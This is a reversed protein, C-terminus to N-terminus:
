KKVGAMILAAAKESRPKLCSKYPLPQVVMGAFYDFNPEIVKGDKDVPKTIDFTALISALSLWVHAKAMHRGPCIRRGFGFIMEPDMIAPNLKGDLLWREPKFSYPDPYMAEDHLIAWTNPIVVSGAPIRYGRYEDEVAVFHPISIPTVNKWRLSEKMCAAVYPLSAEDDFDPLRDQGVVADIEAQAKKQAEPHALMALIFTGLASVTTGTGATYMTGATAQVVQALYAKDDDSNEVMRQGDLTFSHQPSGAAIKAKAEAYPKELMGRSLRRWEQAKRQFGAGPFWAPVYKLFPMSDVLFRGPVVATVLGEVAKDALEVYPDNSRQIELGYAVSMVFKAAMHRLHDLVDHEPDQLFDYLLENTVEREKPRFSQAAVANFVEHFLRRHARWHDGYKMFALAFDWGMLDNVMRFRPRDSYISARKELLDNAADATSLVIISTGVVNLHLIDSNFKRAWEMYTIWEFSKPMDFLNGVLPLKKPGPPLPLKSRNVQLFYSYLAVLLTGGGVGYLYLSM